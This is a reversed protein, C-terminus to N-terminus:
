KRGRSILICNDHRLSDHTFKGGGTMRGNTNTIVRYQCQNYEVIDEIYLFSGSLKDYLIDNVQFKPIM